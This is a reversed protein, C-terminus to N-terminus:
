TASLVVRCADQEAAKKSSGIGKGISEGNSFVQYIGLEGTNKVLIGERDYEPVIMERLGSPSVVEWKNRLKSQNNQKKTHKM